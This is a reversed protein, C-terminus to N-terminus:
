KRQYLTQWLTQSEASSLLLSFEPSRGRAPRTAADHMMHQTWRTRSHMNRQLWGMQTGSRCGRVNGEVLHVCVSAVAAYDATLWHSRVASMLALQVPNMYSVLSEKRASRVNVGAV